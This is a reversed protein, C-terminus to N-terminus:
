ERLLFRNPGSKYVRDWKIINEKGFSSQYLDIVFSYDAGGSAVFDRSMEALTKQYGMRVFQNYLSILLPKFGRTVILIKAGPFLDALALCANAQLVQVHTPYSYAGELLDVINRGVGYYPLSFGECSTVFYKLEPKMPEVSSRCIDLTDRFGGLTVDKFYLQSHRGFWHQLYTSGCRPFGIHVLNSRKGCSKDAEDTSTSVAGAPIKHVQEASSMLM